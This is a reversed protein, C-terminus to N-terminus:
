QLCRTRRTTARATREFPFQGANKSKAARQGGSLYAAREGMNLEFHFPRFSVCRVCATRPTGQLELKHHAHKTEVSECADARQLVFEASGFLYWDARRVSSSWATKESARGAGRVRSSSRTLDAYSTAVPLFFTSSCPPCSPPPGTLFRMGCSLSLQGMQQVNESQNEKERALSFNLRYSVGESRREHVCVFVKLRSSFLTEDKAEGDRSTAVGKM